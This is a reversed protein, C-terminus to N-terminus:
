SDPKQEANTEVDDRLVEIFARVLSPDWQGDDKERELIALGKALPMGDHYVRAGTMADWTDAISVIRALLPTEEGVLGDPYGSGDWHEHHWNAIESYAKLRVLPRMIVASTSPHKKIIEYEEETLGSPKNLVLEPVGIKGLDHVLAGRTLINLTEEDLGIKEGLLRSYHAVRGSHAATYADKSQLAKTLSKLMQFCAEEQETLLADISNAMHDVSLALSGIEDGRDLGVRSQYDGKAIRNATASLKELPRTVTRAALLAVIAVIVAAALLGAILLQQERGIRQAIFAGAEDAKGLVQSMPVVMVILGTRSGGQALPSFAWLSDGGEYEARVLEVGGRASSDVGADGTAKRPDTLVRRELPQNWSQGGSQQSARAYVALKGDDLPAVIMGEVSSDWRERGEAVVHFIDPTSIDIATVGALRGDPHRIAKSITNIVRGTSADILPPSWVFGDSEAAARYWPRLRPDYDPPYGGHGPFVSHLGVELSTYHWITEASDIGHLRAYTARMAQMRNASEGLEDSHGGEPSSSGGVILSAVHDFSIPLAASSGDARTTQYLPHERTPVNGDDFDAVQWAPSSGTARPAAPGGLLAEAQRAQEEIAYELLSFHAHLLRATDSVKELLHGREREILAERSHGTLEAGLEETSALLFRGLLAMPVIAIALLLLLLKSRISM